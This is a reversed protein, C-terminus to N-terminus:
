RSPLKQQKRLQQRNSRTFMTTWQLLWFRNTRSCCSSQLCQRKPQNFSRSSNRNRKHSSQSRQQSRKPNIPLQRCLKRPLTKQQIPIPHCKHCRQNHSHNNSPRTRNRRWCLISRRINRRKCLKRKGMPIQEVPLRPHNRSQLNTQSPRHQSQNPRPLITYKRRRRSTSKTHRQQRQM